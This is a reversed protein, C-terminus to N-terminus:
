SRARSRSPPSPGDAGTRLLFGHADSDEPLPLEAATLSVVQGRNNISGPETEISAQPAGSTYRARDLLFGPIATRPRTLGPAQVGYPVGSFSPPLRRSRLLVVAGAVLAGLRRRITTRATSAM